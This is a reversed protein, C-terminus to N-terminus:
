ARLVPCVPHPAPRLRPKHTRPRRRPQDAASAPSARRRRSRPQWRRRLVATLPGPRRRSAAREPTLWPRTSTTRSPSPSPSSAPRPPRVRSGSPTRPTRRPSGTRKGPSIRARYALHHPGVPQGRAGARLPRWRRAPRAAQGRGRRHRSRPRHGAGHAGPVATVSVSKPLHGLTQNQVRHRVEDLTADPSGRSM